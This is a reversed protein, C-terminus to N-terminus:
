DHYKSFAFSTFPWRLVQMMPSYDRVGFRHGGKRGLPVAATHTVIAAKKDQVRLKLVYGSGSFGSRGNVDAPLICWGPDRM